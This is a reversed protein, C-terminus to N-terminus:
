RVVREQTRDVIQGTKLESRRLCCVIKGSSDPVGLSFNETNSGFLAPAGMVSCKLCMKMQDSIPVGNRWSHCSSNLHGNSSYNDQKKLLTHWNKTIINMRLSIWGWTGNESCHEENRVHTNRIGFMVINKFIVPYHLCIFSLPLAYVFSIFIVVEFQCSIFTNKLLLNM